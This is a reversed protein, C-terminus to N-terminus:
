KRLLELLVSNNEHENKMDPFPPKSLKHAQYWHGYVSPYPPLLLM